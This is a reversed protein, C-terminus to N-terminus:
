HLLNDGVIAMEFDSMEQPGYASSFFVEVDVTGDSIYEVEFRYAPTTAFEIMVANARSHSLRYEVDNHSLWAMFDLLRGFVGGEIEEFWNSREVTV